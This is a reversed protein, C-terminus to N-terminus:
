LGVQWPVAETRCSSGPSRPQGRGPRPVDEGTLLLHFVLDRSRVPRRVFLYIGGSRLDMSLCHGISRKSNSHFPIFQSDPPRYTTSEQCALSPISGGAGAKQPSREAAATAGDDGDATRGLIPATHSLAMSSTKDPRRGEILRGRNLRFKRPAERLATLFEGM